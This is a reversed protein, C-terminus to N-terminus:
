GRPKAERGHKETYGSYIGGQGIAEDRRELLLASLVQIGLENRGTAPPLRHRDVLGSLRNVNSGFDVFTDDRSLVVILDLGLQNALITM